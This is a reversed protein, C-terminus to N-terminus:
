PSQDDSHSPLNPTPRSEELDEALILLSDADLRLSVGGSFLLEVTAGDATTMATIALLNFLAGRRSAPMGTTRVKDINLIQIGCLQREYVPAGSDTTVGAVAPRDWCFRNAVMVFRRGAREFSMDEGPIIADQLLTSLIEVDETSVARLRLRDASGDQTRAPM